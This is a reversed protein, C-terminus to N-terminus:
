PLNAANLNNPLQSYSLCKGKPTLTFDTSAENMKKPEFIPSFFQCLKKTASIQYHQSPKKQASYDLLGYAALSKLLTKLQSQVLKNKDMDHKCGGMADALRRLSYPSEHQQKAYFLILCVRFARSDELKRQLQRQRIINRLEPHNKQDIDQVAFAHIDNEWWQFLELLVDLAFVPMTERKLACYSM